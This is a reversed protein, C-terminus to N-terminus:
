CYNFILTSHLYSLTIQPVLIVNQLACNVKISEIDDANVAFPQQLVSLLTQACLTQHEASIYVDDDASRFLLVRNYLFIIGYNSEIYL